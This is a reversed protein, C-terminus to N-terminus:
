KSATSFGEKMALDLYEIGLGRDSVTVRIWESEIVAEIEGDRAHAVVNVESEYLAVVVRKILGPSVNLQKLVRKVDSSAKGANVFDGGKIHYNLIM